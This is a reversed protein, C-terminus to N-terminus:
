DKFDLNLRRDMSVDKLIDVKNNNINITLLLAVAIGDALKEIRLISVTYLLSDSSTHSSM